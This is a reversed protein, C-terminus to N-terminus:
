KEIVFRDLEKGDRDVQRLSFRKRDVDVVSFCHRAFYAAQFPLWRDKSTEIAPDYLGAGGGGDVLYIVGKPKTNKEGDFTTDVKWDNLALISKDLSEKGEIQIPHSRQYNHVHGAFVVDVGEKEFLGALVRMQKDGAHTVSSHFPPHHFFVFKWVTTRPKRLDNTLWTRLKEDTWDVYTNSDIVVCHASGYDFSFNAGSPYNAGAGEAFRKVLEDAGKVKPANPQGATLVPGNLPQRWHLFYALSDPSKDFSVGATDHNGTAGVFLTSKLLPAGESPDLRNAGYVPWFKTDYESIRGNAYVIDGTIAVFDPKVLATQYAIARQGETGQACDGFVVMRFTQTDSKPAVTSGTITQGALSIRYQVTVGPELSAMEAQEVAYPEIGNVDVTTHSTTASTWDGRQRYEFKAEPDDKPRRWVVTLQDSRGDRRAGLQIYPQGILAVRPM